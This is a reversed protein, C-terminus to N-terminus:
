DTNDPAPAAATSSSFGFSRPHLSRLLRRGPGSDVESSTTSFADATSTSSPPANTTSQNGANQMAGTTQNSTSQASTTTSSQTTTSTPTKPIQTLRVDFNTGVLWHTRKIWAQETDFDLHWPDQKSFDGSFSGGFYAYCRYRGFECLPDLVGDTAAAGTTVTVTLKSLDAVPFTSDAPWVFPDNKDLDITKLDPELTGSHSGILGAPAKYSTDNSSIQFSLAGAAQALASDLVISVQSGGKIDAIKPLKAAAAASVSDGTALPMSLTATFNGKSDLPAVMMDKMGSKYTHTVVVASGGAPATGSVSTDGPRPMTLTVTRDAARAPPTPTTLLFYGVCFGTLYTAFRKKVSQKKM